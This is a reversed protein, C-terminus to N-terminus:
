RITILPHFHQPTGGCNMMIDVANLDILCLTLSDGTLKDTGTPQSLCSSMRVLSGSGVGGEPCGVSNVVLLACLCVCVYLRCIHACACVLM